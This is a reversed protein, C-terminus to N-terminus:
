RPRTHVSRPRRANLLRLLKQKSDWVNQYYESGSKFSREDFEVSAPWIVSSGYFKTYEVHLFRAQHGHYFLFFCEFLTFPVWQVVNRNGQVPCLQTIHSTTFNVCDKCSETSVDGCCLFLGHVKHPDQGATSYYFGESFKDSSGQTSRLTTLLLNLDTSNRTFNVKNNCFSICLYPWWISKLPQNSLKARLSVLADYQVNTVM